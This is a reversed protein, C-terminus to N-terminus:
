KITAQMRTVGGGSLVPCCACCYIRTPLWRVRGGWGVDNLSMVGSLPCRRSVCRNSREAVSAVVRVAGGLRLLQVQRALSATRETLSSTAAGVAGRLRRRAVLERWAKWATVLARKRSRQVAGRALLEVHEARAVAVAEARRGDSACLALARWGSELRRRRVRAVVSGLLRAAAHRRDHVGQKRGAAIAGALSESRWVGLRRSLARRRSRFMVGDLRATASVVVRSRRVRSQLVEWAARTDCLLRSRLCRRLSRRQAGHLAEAATKAAM